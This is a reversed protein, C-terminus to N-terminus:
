PKFVQRERESHNNVANIQLRGDSGFDSRKDSSHQEFSFHNKETDFDTQRLMQMANM